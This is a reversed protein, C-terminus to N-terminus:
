PNMIRVKTIAMQIATTKSEFTRKQLTLSISIVTNVDTQPYTFALYYLNESLVKQNNDVISILQRGNQKYIVNRGDLTTFSIKSYPPQGSDESVVVTDPLSQRINRNMLDMIVRIERQIEIRADNLFFFKNVDNLLNPGVTILIGLITIVIMAEILTFGTLFRHNLVSKSSFEKDNYGLHTIELPIFGKKNVM